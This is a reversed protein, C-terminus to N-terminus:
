AVLGLRIGMSREAPKESKKPPKIRPELLVGEKLLIKRKGITFIIESIKGAKDSMDYTGSPSPKGAHKKFLKDVAKAYKKLRRASSCKEVAKRFANVAGQRISHDDNELLKLANKLKNKELYCVTLKEAALLRDIMNESELMKVPNEM